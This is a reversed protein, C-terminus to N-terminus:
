DIDKNFGFIKEAIMRHFEKTTIKKPKNTTQATTATITSEMRQLSCFSALVHKKKKEIFRNEEQMYNKLNRRCKISEIKSSNTNKELLKQSLSHRNDLSSSIIKTNQM